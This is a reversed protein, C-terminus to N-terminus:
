VGFYDRTPRLLAVIVVLLGILGMVIQMGIGAGPLYGLLIGEVIIWIMLGGGAALALWWGWLRRRLVGYLM